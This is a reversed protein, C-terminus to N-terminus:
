FIRVYIRTTNLGWSMLTRSQSTLQFVDLIIEKTTVIVRSGVPLQLFHQQLNKWITDSLCTANVFLITCKTLDIQMFDQNIIQIRQLRSALIDPCTTILSAAKQIRQRALECLGPLLEVGISQDFDFALAATMVAKGSGSGLDFFIDGSQPHTQELLTMFALCDIEGYTFNEDQKNLAQRDKHSQWRSATHQFVKTLFHDIQLLTAGRPLQKIQERLSRKLLYTQIHYRWLWASWIILNIIILLYLTNM